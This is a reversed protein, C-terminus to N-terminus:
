TTEGITFLNKKKFLESKETVNQLKNYKSHIFCVVM